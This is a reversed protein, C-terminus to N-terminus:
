AGSAQPQKAVVVSAARLLRDKVKYGKRVQQMVHGEPVETSELQSVAEHWNPDFPKGSADIEELGVDALAAKLQGHIMGVGLKFSELNAGEVSQAAALAMELNDLVPVLKALLSETANRAAETRERAARKRYNELDAATRLYRDWNAEAQAAKAQLEAVEEAKLFQGLSVVEAAPSAVETSGGNTAASVETQNGEAGEIMKAESCM